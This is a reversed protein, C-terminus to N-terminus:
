VYTEALRAHALAFRDDIQISRELAKSAQYFSGAQIADSGRDYWSRAEPSPQHASPRWLQLASWIGLIALPVLFLGATIVVRPKRISRSLGRTVFLRLSGPAPILPRTDLRSGKLTQQLRRMRLQRSLLRM